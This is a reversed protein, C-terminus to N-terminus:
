GDPKPDLIRPVTVELDKKWGKRKHKEKQKKTEAVRKGPIRPGRIGKM